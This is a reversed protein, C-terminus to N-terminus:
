DQGNDIHNESDERIPIWGPFQELIILVTERWIGDKNQADNDQGDQGKDHPQHKRHSTPSGTELQSIKDM